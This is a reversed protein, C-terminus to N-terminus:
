WWFIRFGLKIKFGSISNKFGIYKDRNNKIWAFGVFHKLSHKLSDELQFSSIIISLGKITVWEAVEKSTNLKQKKTGM